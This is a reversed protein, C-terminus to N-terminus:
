DTDFRHSLSALTGRTIDEIFKQSDKGKGFKKELQFITVTCYRDTRQRKAFQTYKEELEISDLSSNVLWTKLM